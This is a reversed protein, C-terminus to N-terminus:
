GCVVDKGGGCGIRGGVRGCGVWVVVDKGGM